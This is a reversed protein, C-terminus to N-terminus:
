NHKEVKTVLGFVSETRVEKEKRYSKIYRSNEKDQYIKRFLELLSNIGADKCKELFNLNYDITWLILSQNDIDQQEFTIKRKNSVSQLITDIKINEIKDTNAIENGLTTLNLLHLEKAFQGQLAKFVIDAKEVNRLDMSFEPDIIKFVANDSSNYQPIFLGSVLKESIIGKPDKLNQTQPKGSALQKNLSNLSSQTGKCELLHLDYSEDLLIFDPTKSPGRKSRNNIRLSPIHKLFYGTDVFALLKMNNTLYYSAFGMGFDDSLITKQHPDVDQWKQNLRFTRGSLFCNVYRLYAWFDNVSIGLHEPHRTSLGIHLLVELL